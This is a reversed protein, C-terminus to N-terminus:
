GIRAFLDDLPCIKCAETSSKGCNFCVEDAAEEVIRLAIEPVHRFMYKKQPEATSKIQQGMEQVIKEIEKNLFILNSDGIGMRNM